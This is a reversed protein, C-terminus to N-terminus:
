EWSGLKYTKTEKVIRYKYEPSVKKEAELLGMAKKKDLFECYLEGTEEDKGHALTEIKGDKLSQVFYTTQTM